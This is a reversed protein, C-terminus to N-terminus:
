INQCNSWITRIIDAVEPISQIESVGTGAYLAMAEINGKYQFHPTQVGYRKIQTDGAIGTIDNEGPRSGEPPCGAAEWMEFTTNRIIRHTANPWDRSNCVTFVTDAANAKLLAQKYTEHAGSEKSAVFRSGMVVGAAGADLMKRMTHGAAIGGSAVVPTDGAVSLVRALSEELPRSAQVHGGAEMGQCVLYQAGLDLAMKASAESTVQIGLVGQQRVAQAQSKTPMGWSFQVVQVGLDLAQQLTNPPLDMVYNVFFPRDTKSTVSEIRAQVGEKPTWTLPLGGLGGANSVAAVLEPTVVGGTPAQIIPCSIGLLNMLSKTSESIKMKTQQKDESAQGLSGFPMVSGIAGAMSGKVVFERRSM